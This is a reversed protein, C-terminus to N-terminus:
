EDKYKENNSGLSFTYEMSEILRCELWSPIWWWELSKPGEIVCMSQKKM